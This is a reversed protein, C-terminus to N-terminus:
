WDGPLSAPSLLCNAPASRWGPNSGAVKAVSRPMNAICPNPSMFSCARSVIIRSLNMSPCSCHASRLCNSPKAGPVGIPSITSLQRTQSLWESGSWFALFRISDSDSLWDPSERLQSRLLAATTTSVRSRSSTTRSSINFNIQLLIKANPCPPTNGSPIFSCLSPEPFPRPNSLNPWARPGPRRFSSVWPLTGGGVTVLPRSPWHLSHISPM